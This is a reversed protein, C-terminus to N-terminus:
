SLSTKEKDHKQLKEAIKLIVIHKTIGKLASGPIYPVGYNRHLRISTEYVSEDGLGVILRSKTKEPFIEAGKFEWLKNQVQFFSQYEQLTKPPLEIKYGFKDYRPKPLGDKKKEDDYGFPVFKHIQLSANECGKNDFIARVVGELEKPLKYESRIQFKGKGQHKGRGRRGLQDRDRM